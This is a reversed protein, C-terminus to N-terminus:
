AGDFLADMFKILGVVVLLLGVWGGALGGTLLLCWWTLWLLESLELGYALWLRRGGPIPPAGPIWGPM